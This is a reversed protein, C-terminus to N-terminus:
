SAVEVVYLRLTEMSLCDLESRLIIVGFCHDLSIKVNKVILRCSKCSGVKKLDEIGNVVLYSYIVGQNVVETLCSFRKTEASFGRQLCM